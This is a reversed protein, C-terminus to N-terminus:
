RVCCRPRIYIKEGPDRKRSFFDALIKVSVAIRRGGSQAIPQVRFM